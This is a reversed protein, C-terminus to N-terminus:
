SNTTSCLHHTKLLSEYYALMGSVVVEKSFDRLARKRASKGMEKRIDPNELFYTMNIFLQDVNGPEYLLGTVGEEIADTIGYIRTGISPIGTSAAEIIVSGFGERYSPLCLVDAAAIYREPSDTYDEFHLKDAYEFCISSIRSRMNDEDPGVIILHVNRHLECIKLFANALDILGKDLTLRGIFIFVADTEGISFMKRVVARNNRNPMFREKDVGRMSGNAIVFSKKMSVVGERVIFDRQSYSDVLINTACVSLLKDLLKFCLRSLGSRTAWIQGTFTHIRIPIGALCACAMSLLGSKPMISHVIDFQYKRFLRYLQFFSIVDRLPSIKREMYLPIVKIGADLGFPKLFNVDNTNTVVTVDFGPVLAKLHDILFFKVAIDVTAVFCIQRRM